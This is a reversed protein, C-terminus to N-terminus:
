FQRALSREGPLKGVLEGAEIAARSRERLRQFKYSLRPSAPQGASTPRDDERSEVGNDGREFQFALAFRGTRPAPAIGFDSDTM